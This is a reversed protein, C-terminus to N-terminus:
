FFWKRAEEYNETIFFIKAIYFRLYKVANGGALVENEKLFFSPTKRAKYFWVSM